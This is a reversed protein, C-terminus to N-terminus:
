DVRDEPLTGDDPTEPAPAEAEPAEPGSPVEPAPTEELENKEEAAAQALIDSATEVTMEVEADIDGHRMLAEFQRGTIKEKELLTEALLNLKDLNERIAKEARERGEELIRHVEADIQASLAESYTHTQGYDRGIFVEQEGGLFIPGINESMGWETVMKRALNTAYKIDSSPGTSVDGAIISEAMYGGFSMAINDLLKGRPMYDTEEQSFTQTYGGASGRPVISVEQVPDCNPMLWAVLAHGAEHFAVLRRDKETVKHSRKEPGLQVRNIAEAIDAMPIKTRHRRASLLAAENLVNELDAGTFYPTLKAVRALDVDADLPKGRAHVELIEERGLM